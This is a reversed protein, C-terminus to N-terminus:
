DDDDPLLDPPLSRWPPDTGRLRRFLLRSLGPQEDPRSWDYRASLAAMASGDAPNSEEPWRRPIYDYPTYDPTSTFADLM